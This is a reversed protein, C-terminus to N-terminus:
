TDERPHQQCDTAPHHTLTGDQNWGTCLPGVRYEILATVESFPPEGDPKPYLVGFLAAVTEVAGMYAHEAEGWRRSRNQGGPRGGNQLYTVYADNVDRYKRCAVLLAAEPGTGHRTSTSRVIRERYAVAEPRGASLVREAPTLAAQNGIM